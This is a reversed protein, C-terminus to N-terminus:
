FIRLPLFLSAEWFEGLAIVISIVASVIYIMNRKNNGEKKM